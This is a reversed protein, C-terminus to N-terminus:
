PNTLRLSLSQAAGEDLIFRQAHSRLSELYDPDNWLNDEVFDVAVGFYNDAPLGKVEWIGRQDPRVARVFRSGVGWKESDDAFLLVSGDQVPMGRDDILQGTVTTVRDTVVIDIDTLQEGSKLELPRDSIDRGERQISKVMWGDPPAAILRARGLISKVIFTWDDQMSGVGASSARVDDILQSTVRMQTAPFSPPAGTETVIRGLATWGASTVLRVNDINEGDIALSIRATEGDGTRVNGTTVDVEYEGPTVNRFAFSGDAAIPASGTSMGGGGVGGGAAGIFRIRLAANRGSLPQGHSDLAIGSISAPRGPIMTVDGVRVQQGIAVDVIRADRLSPTGPYFIPSFGMLQRQGDLVTTWTERTMARIYYRGPALGTLRFRGTDDTGEFGGAAVALQRRGEIYMPRMAWVIVDSMPEGGDDLVRGLMSGTRPLSLDVDELIQGNSIRIPRAQDGPRRQGYQLSLYGARRVTLVYRGPLLDKLEYRGQLNTSTSKPPGGQATTVTVQARRLPRGTDGALIRGRILAPKAPAQAVLAMTAFACVAAVLLLSPILGLRRRKTLIDRSV